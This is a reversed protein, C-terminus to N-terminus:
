WVLFANYVDLLFISVWQFMEHVLFSNMIWSQHNDQIKGNNFYIKLNQIIYEKPIFYKYYVKNSLIHSCHSLKNKLYLSLGAM